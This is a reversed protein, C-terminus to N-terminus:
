RSAAPMPIRSSSPSHSQLWFAWLEDTRAGGCRSRHAGPQHCTATWRWYERHHCAIASWGLPCKTPPASRVDHIAFQLLKLIHNSQTENNKNHTFEFLFPDGCTTHASRVM